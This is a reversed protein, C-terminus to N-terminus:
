HNIISRSLLGYTNGYIDTSCGRKTISDLHTVENSQAIRPTIGPFSSYHEASRFHEIPPM